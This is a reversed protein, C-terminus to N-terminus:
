ASWANQYDRRINFRRPLSFNVVIVFFWPSRPLSYRSHPRKGTFIDSAVTSPATRYTEVAICALWDCTSRINGSPVVNAQRIWSGALQSCRIWRTYMAFTDDIALNNSHEMSNFAIVFHFRILRVLPFTTRSLTLRKTLQVASLKKM